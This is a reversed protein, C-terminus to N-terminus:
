KAQSYPGQKCLFIIDYQQEGLMNKILAIYFNICIWGNVFLLRTWKVTQVTWQGLVNVCVTTKWNLGHWM